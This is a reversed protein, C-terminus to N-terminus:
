FVTIHNERKRSRGELRDEMEEFEYSKKKLYLKLLFISNPAFQQGM